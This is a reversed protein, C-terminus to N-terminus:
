FCDKMGILSLVLGIQVARLDKAFLIGGLAECSERVAGIEDNWKSFFLQDNGEELGRLAGAVGEVAARAEEQGGGRELSNAAEYLLAACSLATQVNGQARAAYVADSGRLTFSEAMRQTLTVEEGNLEMQSCVRRADAKSAYCALIVEEGDRVGAGGASYVQMVVAASTSDECSKVLFFFTKGLEVTEKPAGLFFAGLFFGVCLM